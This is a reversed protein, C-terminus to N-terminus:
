FSIALGVGGTFKQNTIDYVVVPGVSTQDNLDYNYSAEITQKNKTDFDLLYALQINEWHGGVYLSSNGFGSNVVGEYAVVADFIGFYEGAAGIYIGEQDTDRASYSANLYANIDLNSPQFAIQAGGRPQSEKTFLNDGSAESVGASISLGDFLETLDAGLAISLGESFKDTLASKKNGTGQTASSAPVSAEIRKHYFAPNSGVSYNFVTDGFTGSISWENLSITKGTAGTSKGDTDIITKFSDDTESAVLFTASLDFLEFNADITTSSLYGASVKEGTSALIGGLIKTSISNDKEEEEDKGIQFKNLDKFGM